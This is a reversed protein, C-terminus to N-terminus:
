EASQSRSALEQACGLEGPSSVSIRWSTGDFIFEVAQNASLSVGNVTFSKGGLNVPSLVKFFAKPYSNAEMLNVSLNGTLTPIFIQVNADALATLNVVGTSSYRNIMSTESVRTWLGGSSVLVASGGGADECVLQEGDAIPVLVLFPVSITVRSHFQPYQSWARGRLRDPGM